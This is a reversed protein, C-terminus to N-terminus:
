CYLMLAVGVLGGAAAVGVLGGAAAVGVLCGAAAGPCDRWGPLGGLAGTLDLASVQASTTLEIRVIDTSSALFSFGLSMPTPMAGNM